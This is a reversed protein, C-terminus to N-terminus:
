YGQYGYELPQWDEPDGRLVDSVEEIVSAMFQDIEYPFLSKPPHFTVSFNDVSVICGLQEEPTDATKQGRTVPDPASIPENDNPLSNGNM